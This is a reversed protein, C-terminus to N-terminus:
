PVRMLFQLETLFKFHIRGLNTCLPISSMGSNGSTSSTFLLKVDKIPKSILSTTNDCVTISPCLFLRRVITFSLMSSKKFTFFVLITLILTSPFIHVKFKYIIILHKVHYPVDHHTTSKNDDIM